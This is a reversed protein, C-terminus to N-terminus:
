HAMPASPSHSESRGDDLMLLILWPMRMVVSIGGGKSVGMRFQMSEMKFKARNQLVLNDEEMRRREDEARKKQEEEVRRMLERREVEQTVGGFWVTHYDGDNDGDVEMCSFWKDRYRGIRQGLLRQRM